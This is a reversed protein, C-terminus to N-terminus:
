ADVGARDPVVDSHQGVSAPITHRARGRDIGLFRNLHGKKGVVFWAIAGFLPFWLIFIVWLLKGGTSTDGNALTSVIAAVIMVVVALFALGILVGTVGGMWVVARGSTDTLQALRELQPTESLNTIM